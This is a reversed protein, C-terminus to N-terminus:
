FASAFWEEFEDHVVRPVWTGMKDQLQKPSLDSVTLGQIEFSCDDLEASRAWFRVRIRGDKAAWIDLHFVRRATGAFADEGHLRRLRPLEPGPVGQQSVSSSPTQGKCCDEGAIRAQNPRAVLPPAQEEAV